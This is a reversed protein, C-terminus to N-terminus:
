MILLNIYAEKTSMILLSILKIVFFILVIKSTYQRIYILLFMEM